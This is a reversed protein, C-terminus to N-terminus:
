EQKAQMKKLSQKNKDLDRQIEEILEERSFITFTDDDRKKYEEIRKEDKEIERKLHEETEFITETQSSYGYRLKIFDKGIWMVTKWPFNNTNINCEKAIDYLNRDPEYDVSLIFTGNYRIEDYEEEIRKRLLTKFSNINKEELNTKLMNGLATAMVEDYGKAGCDLKADKIVEGWWNSAVDLIKEKYEM